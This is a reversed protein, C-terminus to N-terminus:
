ESFAHTVPGYSSTSLTHNRMYCTYLATRTALSTVLYIARNPDRWHAATPEALPYAHRRSQHFLHFLHSLIETQPPNHRGRLNTFTGRFSTNPIPLGSYTWPLSLPSVQQYWLELLCLLV